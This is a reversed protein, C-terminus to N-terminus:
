IDTEYRYRLMPAPHGALPLLGVGDPCEDHIQEVQGDGNAYHSVATVCPCILRTSDCQITRGVLDALAQVSSTTPCGHPSDLSKVQPSRPGKRRNSM